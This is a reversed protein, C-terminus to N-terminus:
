IARLHGAASDVDTGYTKLERNLSNCKEIVVEMQVRPVAYTKTTYLRHLELAAERIGHTATGLSKWRFHTANPTGKNSALYELAEEASHLHEICKKAETMMPWAIRFAMYVEGLMLNAWLMRESLWRTSEAQYAMARRKSSFQVRVGNGLSVTYFRDSTIPSHADLPPALTKVEARKM